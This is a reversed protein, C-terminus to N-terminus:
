STEGLLKLTAKIVKSITSASVRYTSGISILTEGGRRRTLISALDKPDRIRVPKSRLPQIIKKTRPVHKWTKGQIIRYIVSNRVGYETTLSQLSQTSGDYRDLIDIVDRDTLKASWCDSGRLISEPKHAAKWAEGSAAKEPYHCTWHQDGRLYRGRGERDRQATNEQTTGKKLHEPNCCAPTNCLHMVVFGNPDDGHGLFYAIRHSKVNTLVGIRHNSVMFMGYGKRCTYGTWVWCTKSPGQGEQKNVYGWFRAIDQQSLPPLPKPEKTSM